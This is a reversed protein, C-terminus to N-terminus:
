WRFSLHLSGFQDTGDQGDFEKSRFVNTYALRVTEFATIVIGVQLDGVLIKKDVSHSDEFTNGDLFINRGMVRGEVGSFVYWGFKKTPEFFDSGSLGPKIGPPGYDNPLDVGVRLIGGAAGYTYVNGLAMGLNPTLDASLGAFTVHSPFRWKREYYLVFGPENELQHHWGNPLQVEKLRHVFTQTEDGQAWPGVVGINIELNDFHDHGNGWESILSVGGYLWGAYPRDDAQLETSAIDEPTFISQGLSFGIRNTDPLVLNPLWDKLKNKVAKEFGTPNEKSLYSFRTGHTYHRDKGSGWLDNELQINVVGQGDDESAEEDASAAHAPALLVLMAGVAWSLLFGRRNKRRDRM